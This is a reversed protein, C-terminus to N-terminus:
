FQYNVNLGYLNARAKTQFEGSLGEKFQQKKGQLHAYGVDVSLNPTFRYTAGLSYWVRDTDPISISKHKVSASEDYAVGTRLTLKDSADFSFGLAYRSSNSFKEEKNFLVNGSNGYATLSKLRKWETLKYSYQMALRDTLKHYGSFEWSAPLNLTLRGPVQEGGTAQSIPLNVGPMAALRALLANYAVPFDNSYNGKFKVDVASRYALGWRHNENLAYSLGANWGLAWKDGKIQSVVTNNPMQRLQGAVNALVAANASDGAAALKASMKGLDPAISKGGGGLYRKVEADAYIANLGLGASFGYGLDYAGSLNFNLATLETSGGYVGANFQDNYQSKMGYNVNLGGGLAFKDSVPTVIYMNPVVANPIVNRHSADVSGMKGKVNGKVNVHADVYVGGATIATSKFQTMLAPNNAVVSANEAVAANGAYALGLGSTSVEALQFAASYAGVASFSFISAITTKTFKNM